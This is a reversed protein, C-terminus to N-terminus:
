LGCTTVRVTSLKVIRSLLRAYRDNYDADHRAREKRGQDKQKGARAHRIGRKRLAELERGLVLGVVRRLGLALRFHLRLERHWAPVLDLVLLDHHQDAFIAVASNRGALARVARVDVRDVLPQARETESGVARFFDALLD